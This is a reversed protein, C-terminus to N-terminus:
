CGEEFIYIDDKVGGEQNDGSGDLGNVFIFNESWFLDQIWRISEM